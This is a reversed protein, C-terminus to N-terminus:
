LPASLVGRGIRVLDENALPEKEFGNVVQDLMTASCESVSVSPLSAIMKLAFAMISRTSVSADRIWGPKAACVEVGVKSEAAIALLQNEAEGQPKPIGDTYM